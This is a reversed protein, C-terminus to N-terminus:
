KKEFDIIMEKSNKCVKKTFTPFMKHLKQRNRQFKKCPTIESM